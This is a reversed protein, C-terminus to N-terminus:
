VPVAECNKTDEGPRNGGGGDGYANKDNTVGGQTDCDRYGMMFVNGGYLTVQAERASNKGGRQRAKQGYLCSLAMASVTM